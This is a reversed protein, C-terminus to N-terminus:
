LILEIAKLMDHSVFSTFFIIDAKTFSYSNVFYFFYTITEGRFNRRSVNTTIPTITVIVAILTGITIAAVVPSFITATGVLDDMEIAGYDNQVTLTAM